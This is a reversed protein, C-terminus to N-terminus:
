ILRRLLALFQARESATLPALTRDSIQLAIPYLSRALATGAASARLIMRRRDEQDAVRDILGREELRRIVGQVTAPDMATLRGLHNQSLPGDQELRVLAAFQMPTLQAEGIMEQFMGTHRQHARRLLHGVQGDLAYSEPPRGTAAAAAETASRKAM